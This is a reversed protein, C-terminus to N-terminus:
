KPNTLVFVIVDSFAYFIRPYMESVAYSRKSTKEYDPNNRQAWKLARKTGRALSRMANKSAGATAQSQSVDQKPRKPEKTVADSAVPDRTGGEFGECDAYLIPRTSSCTKPDAYLHVDASTPMESVGRGVVPVAMQSAQNPGANGAPDILLKIM